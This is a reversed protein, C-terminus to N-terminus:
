RRNRLISPPPSIRCRLSAAHESGQPLHECGEVGQLGLCAPFRNLEGGHASAHEAEDAVEDLGFELPRARKPAREPPQDKGGDHHRGTGPPQMAAELAAGRPECRCPMAGTRQQGAPRHGHHQQDDKGDVEHNLLRAAHGRRHDLRDCLQLRLQEPIREFRDAFVDGGDLPAELM